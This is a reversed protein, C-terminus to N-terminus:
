ELLEPRDVLLKRIHQESVRDVEKLCLRIGVPRLRLTQLVIKLVSMRIQAFPLGDQSEIEGRYKTSFSLAAKHGAYHAERFTEVHFGVFEGDDLWELHVDHAVDGKDVVDCGVLLLHEGSALAERKPLQTRRNRDDHHRATDVLKARHADHPLCRSLKFLLV